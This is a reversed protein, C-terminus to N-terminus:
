SHSSHKKLKNSPVINIQIYKDKLKKRKLVLLPILHVLLYMKYVGKCGQIFQSIGKQNCSGAHM